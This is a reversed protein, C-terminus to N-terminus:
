ASNRKYLRKSKKKIKKWAKESKYVTIITTTKNDM